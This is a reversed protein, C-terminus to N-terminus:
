LLIYIYLVRLGSLGPPMFGNIESARGLCAPNIFRRTCATMTLKNAFLKPLRQQQLTADITIGVYDNVEVYDTGECTLLVVMPVRVM